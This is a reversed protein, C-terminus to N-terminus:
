NGFLSAFFGKKPKKSMGSQINNTVIDKMAELLISASENWSKGSSKLLANVMLNYVDNPLSYYYMEYLFNYLVNLSAAVYNGNSLHSSSQDLPSQFQEQLNSLPLRHKYPIFVETQYLDAIFVEKGREKIKLLAKKGNSIRDHLSNQNNLLYIVADELENRTNGQPCAYYEIKFITTAVIDFSFDYWRKGDFYSIYELAENIYSYTQDWTKEAIEKSYPTIIPEYIRKAGHKLTFYDDYRDGTDCIEKLLYYIKYPEFASLKCQYYFELSQDKLRITALSLPWFNIEAIKRLIPIVNTDPLQIFPANVEIRDEVLKVDVIISGHPVKFETQDTNGFKKRLEPNIYDLLAYFSAKYDKKEHKDLTVNWNSVEIKNTPPTILHRHFQAIQDM